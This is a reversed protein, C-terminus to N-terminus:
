YCVRVRRYGVFGGFRDYLPQRELACAPYADAPGYAVPPAYSNAIIAGAALGGIVGVAAPGAWGSGWGWRSGSWGWRSGGWGWRPGGWGPRVFGPAGVFGPHFGPGWGAAAAPTASLGAVVVAGALLGATTRGLIKRVNKGRTALAAV